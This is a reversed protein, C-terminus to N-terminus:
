VSTYALCHHVEIENFFHWRAYGDFLFLDKGRLILPPIAIGNAHLERQKAIRPTVDAIFKPSHLLQQQPLIQKVEVETLEWKQNYLDPGYEDFDELSWEEECIALVYKEIEDSAELALYHIGDLQKSTANLRRKGSGVM